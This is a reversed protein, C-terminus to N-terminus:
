KNYKEVANQLNEKVKERLRLPALIEVYNLYQMAWYEMAKLSANLVVLCQEGQPKVEIDYGFWDIIQDIVSSSVLMEVHEPKDTFMYPLASSFWKYNIGHEFGALTKLPTREEDQLVVMATIKDMRYYGMDHWKEICAILYYHQNHLIMQYPSAKHAASPHLKKDTGYKNYTFSIQRDHEIAEDVL